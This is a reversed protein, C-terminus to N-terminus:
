DELTEPYWRELYRKAYRRALTSNPDLAIVGCLAGFDTLQKHDAGEAPAPIDIPDTFILHGRQPVM